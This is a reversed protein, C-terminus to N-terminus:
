TLYLWQCGPANMDILIQVVSECFDALSKDRAADAADAYAAANAAYAAYAAADAAYAAYAAADAYAAYAAYAAAYAAADAAADAADAYAADAYAADAADAYAAANAAAYAADAAADANAAADAADAYAAANAAANAAYAADAANKAELCAERTGEIECRKAADLMATQKHADKCISAASRLAELVSKRIALDVVRKTFEKDDLVNASGLQAVALRRLGKARANNSSWNSDNLRIKIARLARSVCTPEDGHPLGMAFCVAAEVCMEGPKPNGVGKVLGADVTELVKTVIEINMQKTKRQETITPLARIV